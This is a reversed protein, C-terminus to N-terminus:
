LTEDSLRQLEAGYDFIIAVQSISKERFRM